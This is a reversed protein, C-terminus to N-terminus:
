KRPLYKGWCPSIKKMIQLGEEENQLLPIIKVRM